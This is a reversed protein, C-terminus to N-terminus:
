RFVRGPKLYRIALQDIHRHVLRESYINRVADLYPNFKRGDPYCIGREGAKWRRYLRWDEKTILHFLGQSGKFGCDFVNIFPRFAEFSDRALQSIEDKKKAKKNAKRGSNDARVSHYM